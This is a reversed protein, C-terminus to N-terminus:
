RFGSMCHSNPMLLVGVGQEMQVLFITFVLPGTIPVCPLPKEILSFQIPYPDEWLKWFITIHVIGDSNKLKHTVNSM